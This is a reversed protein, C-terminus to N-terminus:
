LFSSHPLRSRSAITSNRKENSSAKLNFIDAYMDMVFKDFMDIYVPCTIRSYLHLVEEIDQVDDLNNSDIMEFDRLKEAVFCRREIVDKELLEEHAILRNGKKEEDENNHDDRTEELKHHLTDGEPSTSSLGVVNDQVDIENDWRNTFESYFRDLERYSQCSFSKFPPLKPLRQYSTTRDSFLSKVSQM